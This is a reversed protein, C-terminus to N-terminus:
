IRNEESIAFFYTKEVFEQINQSIEYNLRIPIDFKRLFRNINISLQFHHSIEKM